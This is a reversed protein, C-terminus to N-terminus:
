ELCEEEDEVKLQRYILIFFGLVLHVILVGFPITLWVVYGTDYSQKIGWISILIELMGLFAYKIHNKGLENPWSLVIWRSPVSLTRM